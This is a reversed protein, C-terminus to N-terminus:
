TEISRVLLDIAESKEALMNINGPEDIVLWRLCMHTFTGIFMNRFIRVNCDARIEGDDIGDQVFKEFVHIYDMWADYAKSGYFRKTLQILLLYVKLFHKDDLYLRFHELIFQRVKALKTPKEFIENLNNLNNKFPKEALSILLDEKTKFYEYVLGESVKAAKAIQLITSATYGKEAFLRTAADLISQKKNVQLKGEKDQEMLIRDFLRMIDEHDPAAEPIEKTVLVTYAEFDLTGLIIDRVVRADIDSRFVGERIGEEILSLYIGAYKRLQKYANSQYFNLNSRCELLILSIYERNLDNYRLHVWVIKRLKNYAGAIGQLQEQVLINSEYVHKEVISFLIGEKSGFYQYITPETLGVMKAIEKMNSGDYGNKYFLTSCVDLVLDEKKKRKSKNPIKKDLKKM